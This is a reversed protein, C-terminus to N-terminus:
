VLEIRRPEVGEFIASGGHEARSLFTGVRCFTDRPGAPYILLGWIDRRLTHDSCLDCHVAADFGPHSDGYFSESCRSKRVEDRSPLKKKVRSWENAGPCAAPEPETAACDDYLPNHVAPPHGSGKCDSCCSAILLLQLRAQLKRKIGTSKFPPLPRWDHWIFIYFGSSLKCVQSHSLLKPALTGKSLKIASGRLSISASNIRGYANVGDVVVRSELTNFEARLHRRVRCTMSSQNTIMFRLRSWTRAWSWSPAIWNESRQIRRLLHRLCIPARESQPGKFVQLYPTWLLGCCLDEEWLGALYRYKTFGRMKRVVGAVAPFIDRPDTFHLRSIISVLRYWFDTIFPGQRQITELQRLLNTSFCDSMFSSLGFFDWHMSSGDESVVLNGHQFHIMRAGFYLLRPSLVREQFVWGRTSWRSCELDRIIPSMKVLGDLKPSEFSGNHTLLRLSLAGQAHWSEESVYDIQIARARRDIHALFGELCCSSAPTCITLWSNGYIHGMEQSQEEWDTSDEDQQICLCDIWLYRVRLTQCVTIADRLVPTIM